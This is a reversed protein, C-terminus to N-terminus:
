AGVDRCGRAAVIGDVENQSAHFAAVRRTFADRAPEPLRDLLSRLIIRQLGASLEVFQNIAEPELQCRPCAIPKTSM